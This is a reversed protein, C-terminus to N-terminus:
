NYKIRKERDSDGRSEDHRKELMSYQSPEDTGFRQSYPREQNHHMAQSHGFRGVDTQYPARSNEHGYQIGFQKQPPKQYQQDYANLQPMDNAHDMSQIINHYKMQNKSNIEQNKSLRDLPRVYRDMNPTPVGKYNVDHIFDCNDERECGIESHYFRCPVTKRKPNLHKRQPGQKLDQYQNSQPQRQHMSQPPAGFSKQQPNIQSNSQQNYFAPPTLSPQAFSGHYSSFAGYDLFQNPQGFASQLETAQHLAQKMRHDYTPHQYDAELPLEGKPQAFSHFAPPPNPFPKPPQVALPQNSNHVTAQPLNQKYSIPLFSRSKGHVFQIRFKHFVELMSKLAALNGRVVEANFDPQKCLQTNLAVLYDEVSDTQLGLVQILFRMTDLENSHGFAFESPNIENLGPKKLIGRLPAPNLNFNIVKKGEFVDDIDTIASKKVKNLSSLSELTIPIKTPPDIEPLTNIPCIKPADPIQYERAYYCPAKDAIRNAQM